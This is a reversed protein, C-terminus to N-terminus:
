EETPNWSPCNQLEKMQFQNVKVSVRFLRELAAIEPSASILQKQFSPDAYKAKVEKGGKQTTHSGGKGALYANQTLNAMYAVRVSVMDYFSETETLLGVVAFSHRLNEEAQREIDKLTASGQIYRVVCDEGCLMMIAKLAFHNAWGPGNQKMLHREFGGDPRATMEEINDYTLKKWPKGEDGIGHWQFKSALWSFPERTMTVRLVPLSAYMPSWSPVTTEEKNGGVEEWYASAIAQRALSDVKLSLNTRCRGMKQAPKHEQNRRQKYKGCKALNIKDWFPVTNTQNGFTSIWWRGLYARPLWHMENGIMNHGTYVLHCSSSTPDADDKPCKSRRDAPCMTAQGIPTEADCMLNGELSGMPIFAASPRFNPHTSSTFRAKAITDSSKLYVPYFAGKQGFHRSGRKPKTYNHAAAAFMRRVEGGGSKGNHVFIFPTENRSCGWRRITKRKFPNNKREQKEIKTGIERNLENKEILNLATSPLTNM